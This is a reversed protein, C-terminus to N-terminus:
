PKDKSSLDRMKRVENLVQEKFANESYKIHKDYRAIGRVDDAFEIRVHDDLPYLVVRANQKVLEQQWKKAMRKNDDIETLKKGAPSQKVKLADEALWVELRKFHNKYRKSPPKDEETADMKKIAADVVSKGHQTCLTTYETPRLYINDLHLIKEEPESKELKSFVPPPPVQPAPAERERKKRIESDKHTHTNSTTQKGRASFGSASFGHAAINEKINEKSLMDPRDSIMYDVAQLRNSQRNQTRSCYGFKILENLMRYLKQPGIHLSEKIHNSHFLWAEPKSLCWIALFRTDMKLRDDNILQNAIMTFPHDKDKLTRIVTM